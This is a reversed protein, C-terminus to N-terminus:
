SKTIVPDGEGFVANHIESKAYRYLLGAVLALATIFCGFFFGGAAQLIASPRSVDFPETPKDLVSIIPTLKQLRWIAEEQNNLSIDRQRVFRQKDSNVKGKPIEYELRDTPTFFTTNQLRIARRDVGNIIADLSDIKKVTFAYDAKAKKIKLDIYFQSIRDILIYSIPSVLTKNTNSFYLELMGNKSMKADIASKLLEGGVVAKSLSDAPMEAEKAFMPKHKNYDEILVETVTKNNYDPMKSSAVTERVFRSLALEIINIAAESSFSKPADGLGLLSSISNSSSGNDSTNSLPFITAKATYVPQQQRAYFFLLVGGVLGAALVLLKYKNLKIFIGKILESTTM